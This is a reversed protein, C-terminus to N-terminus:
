PLVLKWDLRLIAEVLAGGSLTAGVVAIWKPAPIALGTNALASVMVAVLPLVIVFYRGQVGEVQDAELGTWVLYFVVFIACCYGLTAIATVGAIRLRARLDLGIPSFLVAMLLVSLVPYFWPLLPTDLWGVIGILQRWYDPLQHFNGGLLTPFHSPHELAFRVKWIPNFQEAAVGADVKRWIAVDASGLVTWWSTLLVAPLAVIAFSRWRHAPRTMAELAVFALQPQKSLACLTVWISRPWPPQIGGPYAARLSLAVIMMTSALATGDASLVARGYLASPLMAIFVFAWQLHPVLAIACAIAATFALFGTIRMLYFTELFGLDLVRALATAPLYPIYPVPSYGESGGYLNFAPSRDSSTEAEHLLAYAAFVQRYSFDDRGIEHRALEFVEMERQLRRPILIGKRGTPDRLSPIIEGQALGYARVFHAPEDPGRMPPTLGIILAGFIGSLLNFVAVPQSYFASTTGWRPILNSSQKSLTAAGVDARHV